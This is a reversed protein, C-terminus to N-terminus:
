ADPPGNHDRPVPGDDSGSPARDYDEQAQRQIEDSDALLRAIREAGGPVPPPVRTITDYLYRCAEAETGFSAMVSDQGRQRLVVLWEDAEPRLVYSADLQMPVGHVGPIEYLADPTGERHLRDVLEARNM